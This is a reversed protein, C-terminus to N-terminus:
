NTIEPDKEKIKYKIKNEIEKLYTKIKKFIGLKLHFTCKQHEFGLKHM